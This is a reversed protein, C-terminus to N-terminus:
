ETLKVGQMRYIDYDSSFSHQMWLSIHRPLLYWYKKRRRIPEPKYLHRDGPAWVRQCKSIPHPHPSPMQSFTSGIKMHDDFFDVGRQSHSGCTRPLPQPTGKSYHPLCQNKKKKKIHTDKQEKLDLIQQSFSHLELCPKFLGWTHVCYM